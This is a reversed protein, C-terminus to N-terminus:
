RMVLLILWAAFRLLELGVCIMQTRAAHNVTEPEDM